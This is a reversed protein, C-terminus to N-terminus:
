NVFEKPFWLVNNNETKKFQEKRLHAHKLLQAATEGDKGFSAIGSNLQLHVKEQPSIEFPNSVFAREIREIIERATEDSATPMVALFEDSSARALFDMRRLQNKITDATYELIRDGTAHGFSDNLESFKKIDVTLITLPREDRFRQSEAIQNELVLYFARENPLNTLSDTLANTLSREFARSSILLPAVRMGIAELLQLSNQDFQNEIEGYLTLVGFSSAGLFLPVAIASNLGKLAQVPIVNKELLLAGDIEAKGSQFTKGTLGADSAIESGIIERANEGAAFTSVLKTKEEDALFLVCCSFQLMEDIRSAVLRFMDHPKLSAGFYQRAEELALLKTENESNFVNKSEVNKLHLVRRTQRILFAIYLGLYLVIIGSFIIAKVRFDLASVSIIFVAILACISLFALVFHDYGYLRFNNPPPHGNKSNVM